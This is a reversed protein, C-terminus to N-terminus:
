LIRTLRLTWVDPGSELYSISFTNSRNRELQALLPLPDHSAMLDLSIGPQIAELAGFIAAHRITHPITRSDLVISESDDHGCTCSAAASEHEHANSGATIRIPEATM